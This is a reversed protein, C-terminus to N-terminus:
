RTAWTFQLVDVYILTVETTYNQPCPDEPSRCMEKKTQSESVKVHVMLFKLFCLTSAIQFIWIIKSTIFQSSFDSRPVNQCGTLLLWDIFNTNKTETSAIFIIFYINVQVKKWICWTRACHLKQSKYFTANLSNRVLHINM